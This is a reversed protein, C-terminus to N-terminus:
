DAGRSMQSRMNGSRGRPEAITVRKRAVVPRESEWRLRGLLNNRKEWLRSGEDGGAQTPREHEQIYQRIAGDEKVGSLRSDANSCQKFELAPKAEESLNAV